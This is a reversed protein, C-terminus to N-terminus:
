VRGYSGLLGGWRYKWAHLEAFSFGIEVYISTFGTLIIFICSSNTFMFLIIMVWSAALVYLVTDPLEM